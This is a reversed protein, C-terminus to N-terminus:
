KKRSIEYTGVLDFRSDINNGNFREVPGFWGNKHSWKGDADQRIVHYDTRVIDSGEEIYAKTFDFFFSIKYADKKLPARKDVDKVDIGLFECDSKFARILTKETYPQACEGSFSGPELWPYGQNSPAFKRKIQMAYGLCNTSKEEGSNLNAYLGYDDYYAYDDEFSPVVFQEQLEDRIRYLENIVTMRMVSLRSPLLIEV